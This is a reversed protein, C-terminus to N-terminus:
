IREKWRKEYLRKQTKQDKTLAGAQLSQHFDVEDPKHRHCFIVPDSFKGKYVEDCIYCQASEFVKANMTGELPSM